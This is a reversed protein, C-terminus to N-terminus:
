LFRLLQLIVTPSCKDIVNPNETVESYCLAIWICTVSTSIAGQIMEQQEQRKQRKGESADFNSHFCASNSRHLGWGQTGQSTLKSQQHSSCGGSSCGGCSAPLWRPCAAPPKAACWGPAHTWSHPWTAKLLLLGATTQWPQSACPWGSEQLRLCQYSRLVLSLCKPSPGTVNRGRETPFFPLMLELVVHSEM